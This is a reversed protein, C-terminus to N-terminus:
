ELEVTRSVELASGGGDVGLCLGLMMEVGTPWDVRWAISGTGTPRVFGPSVSLGVM